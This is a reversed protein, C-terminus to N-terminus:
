REFIPKLQEAFAEFEKILKDTPKIRKIRLDIDGNHLEIWGRNILLRFHYRIGMDSYPLQTFLEKIKLDQGSKSGNIVSLLIDLPIFSHGVPLFEGTIKRVEILKDVVTAISINNM